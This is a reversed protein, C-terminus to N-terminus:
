NPDSLNLHQYQLQYYIIKIYEGAVMRWGRTELWWASPSPTQQGTPVSILGIEVDKKQFVSRLTWLARRSHYASTVVLLSRIGHAKAYEHLLKAEEFTSSVSQPLVKINEAPVGARRLEEAEREVFFPNRQQADSWGGQLNDNTLIIEAARGENFLQAAKQTRELYNASGSLVVLADARPLEANVILLRAGAWAFLPWGAIFLIALCAWRRARKSKVVVLFRDKEPTQHLTETRGKIM